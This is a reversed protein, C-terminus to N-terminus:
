EDKLTNEKIQLCEEKLKKLLDKNKRTIDVNENTGEEYMKTQYLYLLELDKYVFNNYEGVTNELVSFFTEKYLNLYYGIYETIDKCMSNM